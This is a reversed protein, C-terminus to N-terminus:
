EDMEQSIMSDIEEIRCLSNLGCNRCTKSRKFPAVSLRGALFEDALATLRDRWLDMKERWGTCPSSKGGCLATVLSPNRAVLKYGPPKEGKRVPAYAIADPSFKLAYLPLQPEQIREQFWDAISYQGTKYDILIRQGGEVRDMRDIRINLELGGITVSESKEQLIVEFDTRMLELALWNELLASVREVELEVFHPQASLVTRDFTKRVAQRVSDHIAFTLRNEEQLRQLQTRTKVKGWFVELTKHVLNGRTMSEEADARAEPSDLKEAHLRYRAFARFPCHAQNKLVNCGQRSITQQLERREGPAVPLDPKDRWTQLEVPSQLRDIIRHSRGIEPVPRCQPLDKLLTSMRMATEGDWGAFSFVIDPAAGMFRRLVREAFKLEWGGTTHPLKKQLPLPLFPNPSPSAPLVDANCGMVWLHDFALGASDELEVVQVPRDGTKLHFPKEEAIQSLLGAAAVRGINGMVGDLSAFADLCETWVQYTRRMRETWAGEGAPWGIRRLFGSFHHAWASPPQHRGDAALERWSQIFVKLRPAAEPDVLAELRDLSLTSMVRRRLHADLQTRAATESQSGYLFPSALLAAFPAFAIPGRPTSLLSLAPQIMPERALSALAPFNFPLDEERWPFVSQPALEAALEKKLLSGYRNLDVVGFTTGPQRHAQIWRACQISEQQRDKYERVEVRRGQVIEDAPPQPLGHQVEVGNAQLFDLLSHFQPTIEDFGALVLRRGPLPISGKKMAERVADPLFAPDLARWQTLRSEYRKVWGYFTESEHTYKFIEKEAPLRYQRILAYAQAAREAAGRLHLLDPQPARPGGQIISEWLKVSQLRSLVHQEPWSQRWLAKLWDTLPFIPPTPWGAVGERKRREGHRYLLWRALRSGATLVIAGELAPIPM